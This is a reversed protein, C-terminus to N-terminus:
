PRSTTVTVTDRAIPALPLPNLTRILTQTGGARPNDRLAEGLGVGGVFAVAVALLAALLRLKGRRRPLRRPRPENM